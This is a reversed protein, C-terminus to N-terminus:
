AGVQPLIVILGIRTYIGAIFTVYTRIGLLYRPLFSDSLARQALSPTVLYHRLRSRTDDTM